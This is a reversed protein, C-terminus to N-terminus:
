NEVNISPRIIRRAPSPPVALPPAGANPTANINSRPSPMPPVAPMPVSPQPIGGSALVPNPIVGGGGMPSLLAPDFSLVAQQAGQKLVASSNRPDRDIHASVLEIGNVPKGKTVMFRGRAPDGSNAKDVLFVMPQGAITAIGAVSYKAALGEVTQVAVTEVIFPSRKWIPEFTKIGPLEPAFSESDSDVALGFPVSAAALLAACAPIRKRM